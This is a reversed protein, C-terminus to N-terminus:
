FLDLVNKNYQTAFREDTAYKENLAINSEMQGLVLQEINDINVEKNSALLQAMFKASENIEQATMAMDGTQQQNTLIYTNYM